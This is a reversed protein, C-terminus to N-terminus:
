IGDLTSAIVSSRSSNAEERDHAVPSFHPRPGLNQAAPQSKGQRRHPLPAHLRPLARGDPTKPQYRGGAEKLLTSLETAGDSIRVLWTPPTGECTAAHQLSRTLGPYLVSIAHLNWSLGRVFRHPDIQEDAILLEMAANIRSPGIKGGKIIDYYDFQSEDLKALQSLLLMVVLPHSYMRGGRSRIRHDRKPAAVLAAARPSSWLWSEGTTESVAPIHHEIELPYLWHLGDAEHVAGDRLTITLGIGSRRQGERGRFQLTAGDDLVASDAVEPWAERFQEDTM